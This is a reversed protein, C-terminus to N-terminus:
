WEYDMWREPNYACEWVVVSSEETEVDTEISVTTQIDLESIDWAWPIYTYVGESSWSPNWKSALKVNASNDSTAEFFVGYTGAGPISLRIKMKDWMGKICESYCGERDEADMCRDDCESPNWIAEMIISADTGELLTGLRPCIEEQIYMDPAMDVKLISTNGEGSCIEELKLKLQYRSNDNVEEYTKWSRIAAMMMNYITKDITWRAAWLWTWDVTSYTYDLYDVAFLKEICETDFSKLVERLWEEFSLPFTWGPSIIIKRDGTEEDTEIYIEEYWDCVRWEYEGDEVDYSSPAYWFLRCYQQTDNIGISFRSNSVLMPDWSVIKSYWYETDTEISVTDFYTHEWTIIIDAGNDSAPIVEVKYPKDIWLAPYDWEYENLVYRLKELLEADHIDTIGDLFDRINAMEEEPTIKNAQGGCGCFEDDCKWSMPTICQNCNGCRWSSKSKMFNKIQRMM